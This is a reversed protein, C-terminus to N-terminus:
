PLNRRHCSEGEDAFPLREGIEEEGKEELKSM